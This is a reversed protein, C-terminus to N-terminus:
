AMFHHRLKQSLQDLERELGVPNKNSRGAVSIRIGRKTPLARVFIGRHSQFFAVFFGVVMVFCGIWILSVGPDKNVQLGTYNKHEMQDLSFFYPEFSAPNLSPFKEFIEPFRERIGDHDQFVWLKKEEGEPPRIVLLVAPFFKKTM